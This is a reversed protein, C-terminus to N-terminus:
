GEMRAAIRHREPASMIAQAEPGAALSAAGCVRVPKQAPM